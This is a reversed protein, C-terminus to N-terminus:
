FFIVDLDQAKKKEAEEQKGLEDSSKPKKKTSRVEQTHDVTLKHKLIFNNMKFYFDEISDLVEKKIHSCILFGESKDM